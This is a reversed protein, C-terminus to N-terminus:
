AATVSDNGAAGSDIMPHAIPHTIDVPKTDRDFNIREKEVVLPRNQVQTYIAGVYEGLVGIFFLQVSAFLLSGILIPATGLPFYNWFVLKAILYGFALFLAVTAMVFGLLTAVRLPIRSHNTVGLVAVDYLRYFNYSSVGRKRTPQHFVIKAPTFGLDSILGKGFPYPDGIKRFWDIVVRDYLGFGTAHKTIEIDSLADMIRYYLTRLAFMVPSEESTEKVGLVVKFGEEWKRLFEPIMAPPDQLDAAMVIAADGSAQILGHFPSRVVGFNRQNVIVKVNPDHAALGRLIDVTRDRSANDIFLHEYEYDGLTAMVKKVEDYLLAVNAEENYCPTLITIHKM